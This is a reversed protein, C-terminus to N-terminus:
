KDGTVDKVVSIITNFGKELKNCSEETLIDDLASTDGETEDKVGSPPLIPAIAKKVTPLLKKFCNDIQNGDNSDNIAESLAEGIGGTLLNTVISGAESYDIDSGNIPNGDKDKLGMMSATQGLMQVLGNTTKKMNAKAQEETLNALFKLRDRYGTMEELYIDNPKMIRIADLLVELLRYKIVWPALYELQLKADVKKSDKHLLLCNEASGIANKYISSLLIQYKGDIKTDRGFSMKYNDSILFDSKTGHMEEDVITYWSEGFLDYMYLFEPYIIKCFGDVNQLQQVLSVVKSVQEKFLLLRGKVKSSVVALSTDIVSTLSKFFELINIYEKSKTRKNPVPNTSTEM